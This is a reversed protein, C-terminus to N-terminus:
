RQLTLLGPRYPILGYDSPNQNKDFGQYLLQLNCPDVTKTQDPNSRVLDGHSIDNSWNSGGNYTVNNRGAFPSAETTALPTWSGGLSTATFSRFYRGGSGIAEVIMLYQNQGQVKYVEVAEFLNNTTDTMITTYTSGFSGPFNAIPMSSRYIRGNDGAFFLYCNADDCILTQDIPGTNSGSISATSLTNAGSWGNPNTPNTSTKYSFTTPGWQYALVWINKPAFYLLTPAVTGQSMATQTASGMQPWDSFLSFAMSGWTSGLDHTTGYVLHQGNYVVNTFDKLSVWGSRPQALPGTSTWQFTSPLTCSTGNFTATVTQNTNMNVVCSGTGSCAGSWGGFTSGGAAQATLTVSSGSTFNASCNSTCNIGAPSSTVTGSGSGAKNYTLTFTSASGGAVTIGSIKPNEVVSIFQIVVQGSANATTNFTRAIARNAGGATAFIDFNSLVSTGNISVNFTRQGAATWYTEAFYLTVTQAGSRNPITYTMAGYRETNFIAAPPPNTPIQSMDITATNTYTNGGSFYADASFSGTAPGGANISVAGSTPTGTRTPTSTPGANDSFSADDIYFSDTGATTEVYFTASSLTGSWSVTATGSLLTWGSSNVAGQALAIYSTTGNVTLALTVKGTPSGSQTRMWVNTTYTRGNTLRSTVNQSIGNWSATRGTILLSQAGGHVPNTSASLTGAGFVGWGSTGSEINGNTLLNASQALVLSPKPQLLSLSLLAVLAILLFSQRSIIKKKSM